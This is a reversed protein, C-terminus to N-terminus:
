EVPKGALGTPGAFCLLAVSALLAASVVAFMALPGYDNLLPLLAVPTLAAAIRGAGWAASTASARVATPFLEAGYLSLAASYVASLLNFLIGLLILPTLTAVIAFALGTAIMAGASLSLALRREVRDIFLAAAAVGLTPGFMSLGAFLMSDDLHFGKKLMVSASLLPFGITAWPGLLYLASLLLTRGLDRPEGFARSHTQRVGRMAGALPPSTPIAAPSRVAAEFRRCGRDAEDLRGVAALWRPSEPALYFLAATAASVLAGSMLAWRWGEIAWPSWPTLWRILLIAAPAGLFALAACVMMWAGRRRPPMLDSLYAATLPPYAGLALGSVFRFFTVTAIQGSVAAAMSSLALVVLAGQLASRRGKRDAFWGLAPAGIAGGVFVAALLLSIEGRSAHYPAAQFLGSFVNSLAVEAIDASLGITCVALIAIHLATVPLRDLRQAVAIQGAPVSVNAETRSHQLDGVDESASQPEPLQRRM